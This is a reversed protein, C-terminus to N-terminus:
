YIAKYIFIINLLSFVVLTGIFAIKDMKVAQFEKENYYLRSIYIVMIVIFLIAGFTILHIQDILTTQTSTPVVSEVIYKNGVAAFLGGVALGLRTEAEPPMIKFVLLSIFFAVYVGMVLKFFTTWGHTRTLYIETEVAPYISEGQLSPDGYTTNYTVKNSHTRFSDINWENLSLTNKINTNKVDANYVVTKIDSLADEINIVLKQKDFPFKAVDWDHMIVSTCKKQAWNLGDKKLISYNSFNTKKSDTIEQNNEFSLKDNKYLSWTWFEATYSDSAIDFDYLNTIFLGVKATDQAYSQFIFAFAIILTLIRNM